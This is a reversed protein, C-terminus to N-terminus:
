SVRTLGRAGLRAHLADMMREPVRHLVVAGLAQADLAGGAFAAEVFEARRRVGEVSMPGVYADLDRYGASAGVRALLRADAPLASYALANAHLLRVGLRRAWHVIHQDNPVGRSPLPMEGESLARGFRALAARSLLMGAGGSLTRTNPGFVKDLAHGILVPESADFRSAYRLLHRVIVYSDDDVLLTWQPLPASGARSYLLRLGEFHRAQADWYGRRGRLADTTEEGTSVQERDSMFLLRPGGAAGAAGAASAAELLPAAWTRRIALTRGSMAESAMVVVALESVRLARQPSSAEAAWDLEFWPTSASFAVAVSSSSSSSKAGGRRTDGAVHRRGAAGGRAASRALRRAM